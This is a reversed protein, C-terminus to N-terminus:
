SGIKFRAVLQKVQHAARGVSEAVARASEPVVEGDPDLVEGQASVYEVTVEADINDTLFQMLFDEVMTLPETNLSYFRHQGDERVTVLEADRLVKLHKSVTPQSVELKVVLDSVSMEGTSEREELLATLLDRRTSDSIVQFIDPM